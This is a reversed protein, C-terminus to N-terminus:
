AKVTIRNNIRTLSPLYIIAREAALRERSTSVQGSLTVVHNRVEAVVSDCPIGDAQKLAVQAAKAIESDTGCSSRADRVEINDAIAHVGVVDIAAAHADSRENETPVEGTLTVSGGDTAVGIHPAQSGLVSRLAAEVADQLTADTPNKDQDM